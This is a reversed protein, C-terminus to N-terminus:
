YERNTALHGPEAARVPVEQARERCGGCRMAAHSTELEHWSFNGSRSSARISSTKSGSYYNACEMFEHLVVDRCVNRPDILAEYPHRAKGGCRSRPLAALEPSGYLHRGYTLEHQQEGRPPHVNVKSRPHPASRLPHSAAPFPANHSGLPARPCSM